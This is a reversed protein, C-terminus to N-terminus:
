FCHACVLFACKHCHVKFAMPAVGNKFTCMSILPRLCSVVNKFTCVSILPRLCSVFLAMLDFRVGIARIILTLYVLQCWSSHRHLFHPHKFSPPPPPTSLLWPKIPVSIYVLSVEELPSPPPPSCVEEGKTITQVQSTLSIKTRSSDCSSWARTWSSYVATYLTGLMKETPNLFVFLVTSSPLVNVILWKLRNELGFVTMSSAPRRTLLTRFKLVAKPCPISELFRTRLKM